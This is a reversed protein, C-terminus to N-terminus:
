APRSLEDAIRGAHNLLATALSRAGNDTLVGALRVLRGNDYPDIDTVIEALWAGTAADIGEECVVDILAAARQRLSARLDAAWDEYLDDALLVDFSSLSARAVARAEDHSGEARLRQVRRFGSEFVRVDLEVSEVFVIKDGAREVIGGTAARARAIVNRIRGRGVDPSVDPWLVDVAMDITVSGGRAAVLKLLKTPVGPAQPLPHGHRRVVFTGLAQVAMATDDASPAPPGILSRLVGLVRPEMADPLQGVGWDDALRSALAQVETAEATEGNRGLAVARLLEVRWQQSPTLMRAITMKEAQALATPPDGHLADLTLQALARSESPREPDEPLLALYERAGEPDGVQALARATEALIINRTPHNALQGLHGLAADSHHRIASASGDHMALYMEAWAAYAVVWSMGAKDGVARAENISERAVARDNVLAAVQALFVLSQARVFAETGALEAAEKLARAASDYRASPMLVFVAWGQLADARALRDDLAGWLAAAQRFLLDADAQARADNTWGIAHARATTITARTSVESAPTADDLVDLATLLDPSPGGALMAGLRDAEVARRLPEDDIPTAALALDLATKQEAIQGLERYLRAELLRIRPRADAIPGLRKVVEVLWYHDVDVLRARGLSELLRAVAASDGAADLMDIAAAARGAAVLMPAALHATARSLPARDRLRSAVLPPMEIVSEVGVSVPVGADLWTRVTGEGGVADVMTTTLYPLYAMQSLLDRDTPRLGSFSIDIAGDIFAPDDLCHALAAVPAPAASARQVIARLLVYSWDVAGALRASLYRPVDDSALGREVLRRVVEPLPRLQNTTIWDTEADFELGLLASPILRASAVLRVAQPQSRLHARLLALAAGDLNSVDDVLLVVALGHVADGSRPGGPSRLSSALGARGIREYGAQLAPRLQDVTTTATLALRVCRDDGLREGLLGLFTTKGSGPGAQVLVHATSSGLREM